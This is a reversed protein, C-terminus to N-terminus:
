DENELYATTTTTEVRHQYGHVYTYKEAVVIVKNIKLHSFAGPARQVKIVICDEDSVVKIHREDSAEDQAPETKNAPEPIESKDQVPNKKIAEEPTKSTEDQVPDKIAQEPIEATEDPVSEFDDDSASLELEDALHQLISSPRKLVIRAPRRIKPIPRPSPTDNSKRKKRAEEELAAVAITEGERRRNYKKSAPCLLVDEYGESITPHKRLYHKKLDGRRETEYRCEECQFTLSYHHKERYHKNLEGRRTFGSSCTACIHMM